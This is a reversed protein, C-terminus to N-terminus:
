ELYHGHISIIPTQSPLADNACINRVLDRETVIGEIEDQNNTLIVSSVKNDSMKKAVQLANSDANIKILKMSMVSSVLAIDESGNRKNM